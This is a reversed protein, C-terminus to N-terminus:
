SGDGARRAEAIDKLTELIEPSTRRQKGRLTVCKEGVLIWQLHTPLQQWLDKPVTVTLSLKM